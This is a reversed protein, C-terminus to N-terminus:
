HSHYITGLSKISTPFEVWFTSGEGAASEVGISGGMIETLKKCISLGLGIGEVTDYGESIREFDQFLREQQTETMGRGTDTIHIRLRNNEVPTCGLKISGGKKNYKVANSLLNILIQKLRFYDANINYGYEEEIDNILTIDNNHAMGRIHSICETGILSISVPEMELKMKGSEIQTLDLVENILALLHKGSKLIETLYSSQEENLPNDDEMKLLDGFGLISNLPTRLEHSMNSLFESKARSANEAEEKAKLIVMEAKKRETIDRIVGVFGKKDGVLMPAVNVEIPFLDGKKRRGELERDMRSIKSEYMASNRTYVEHQERGEEPLLLSINKGKIEKVTYGFMGEASPNFTEILGQDNISIIAEATNNVIARTRSESKELLNVLELRQSVYVAIIMVVIISISVIGIIWTLGYPPIAIKIHNISGNPFFYTAAMATYHMAAIAIGMIVASILLPIEPVGVRTRKHEAWLKLRLAIGALVVAVVISMVFLNIDYAMTANEMHMAAMGTYHMLGIGCGMFVSRFLFNVPSMETENHTRLVIASALVAPVVSVITMWLEYDVTFPLTYALMAIFHMAWIGTGQVLAGTAWWAYQKPSLQDDKIKESVAFAVYSALAAILISLFVLSPEYNGKIATEIATNENIFDFHLM